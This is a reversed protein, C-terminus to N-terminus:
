LQSIRTVEKDTMLPYLLITSKKEDQQTVKKEKNSYLSRLTCNSFKIKNMYCKRLVKFIM